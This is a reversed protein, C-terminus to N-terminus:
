GTSSSVRAHMNSPMVAALVMEKAPASAKRSESLPGFPFRLPALMDANSLATSIAHPSM